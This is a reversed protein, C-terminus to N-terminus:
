KSLAAIRVKLQNDVMKVSENTEVLQNYLEKGVADIQLEYFDELYDRLVKADAGHAVAWADAELEQRDDIFLGYQAEDHLHGSFIHGLEHLCVAEYFEKPGSLLKHNIYIFTKKRERDCCTFATGVDMGGVLYNCFEDAIYIDTGMLTEVFIRDKETNKYLTFLEENDTYSTM